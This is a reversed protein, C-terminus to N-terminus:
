LVAVATVAPPPARRRTARRRKWFTVAAVAVALLSALVGIGVGGVVTTLLNTGFEHGVALVLEGGEAGPLEGSVVYAGPEDIEFTLISMGARGGLSYSTSGGPPRLEVAQGTEASAVRVALGPVSQPSAYYRGGVVSEHEHFITYTGLEAFTLEAEGPVVVQQLESGLDKVRWFVFLGALGGGLFLVALAVVYWKRGPM